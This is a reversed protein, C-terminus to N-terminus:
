AQRRLPPNHSGNNVRHCDTWENDGPTYVFARQFAQYSGFRSLILSDSCPESGAKIDGAHM